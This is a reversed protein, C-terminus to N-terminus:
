NLSVYLPSSPGCLVLTERPRTCAVYFARQIGAKGEGRRYWEEMGSQSLDPYVVAVDAESGKLSHITGVHLRPSAKLAEPGRKACVRVPYELSKRKGGTLHDEFWRLRGEESEGMAAAIERDEFWEWLRAAELEEGAGFTAKAAQEVLTKAGHKLVGKAETVQVWRWLDEASWLRADKGWASASLRLFALIRDPASVGSRHGLPNWDGRKTRWPNSFPIGERRLVALLPQLMYSCAAIFMVSKGAELYEQARRVEPEPYRYFGSSRRVEGEADRPRYELEKGFLAEVERKLPEIWAMAKAHVARPVRYSQALVWKRDEEVDGGLFATAESGAWAYLNQLPDGVMVLHEAHAGWKRLLALGLASMDQAEDMMIVAPNGPARDVDRLCHEFLDTFDLLGFEQKFRLWLAAFNATHSGPRPEQMRARLIGLEAMSRDGQTEGAYVPETASDDVDRGEQTLRFHFAAPQAIVWENWRKIWKPSDAIEKADLARYAFSHLTGINSKPIVTDRGAVEAAAANTLSCILVNEGGFHEAAQTARRALTTTKGCGPPGWIVLERAM